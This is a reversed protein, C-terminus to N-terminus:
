LKMTILPYEARFRGPSSHSGSPHSARVTREEIWYDTSHIVCVLLTCGGVWSCVDFDEAFIAASKLCANLIWLYRQLHHILSIGDLPRNM